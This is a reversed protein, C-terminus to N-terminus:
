LGWTFADIVFWCAGFLYGVMHRHFHDGLGRFRCILNGLLLDTPVCKPNINDLIM